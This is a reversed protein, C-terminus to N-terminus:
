SSGPDTLKRPDLLRELEGEPLAGLERAVERVTRGERQARKAIESARDYGLVPALSTALASSREVLARCRPEDARLGRICKEGLIRAASAVLALSELLADALVPMMVNLELEGLANALSVTADNGHVRAWVQRVAEPVVPNVKGPMISSGPQLAPLVVEAIGGSPGSSLLRLDNAIKALASAAERAAASAAACAGRSSQAEFPERARVLPVGTREGLAALARDAFGVPANLGTGVATGGLPVERLESLPRELRDAAREVLGAWGSLEQGLRIPVADMLHTRGLKVVGELERAKERLDRALSALAPRTERELSRAAALHIATPFVDNSSQGLNVHDNPHIPRFVGRPGGGVLENARNAIVENANMNSSTGSGTQFVDVPFEADHVGSAVELAARRIAEAHERPIRGLEGAALACAAKIEGLAHILAPPIRRGSVPFNAVARATQAGYLASAPVAFEGQADREIRTSPESSM